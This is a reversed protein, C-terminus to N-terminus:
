DSSGTSQGFLVTLWDASKRLSESVDSCRSCLGGEEFSQQAALLASRRQSEEEQRMAAFAASNPNDRDFESRRQWWPLDADPIDKAVLIEAEGRGFEWPKHVCPWFNSMKGNWTTIKGVESGERGIYCVGGKTEGAPVAGEPIRDGRKIPIWLQEGRKWRLVECKKQEGSVHLLGAGSKCNGYTVCHDMKRADERSSIQGPEGGSRGIYNSRGSRGSRGSVVADRPIDQDQELLEWTFCKTAQSDLQRNADARSDSM